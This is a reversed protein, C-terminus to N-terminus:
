NRSTKETILTNKHKGLKRGQMKGKETKESGGSTDLIFSPETIGQMKGKETKESGRSTNLMFSPEQRGEQRRDKLSKAAKVALMVERSLLNSKLSNKKPLSHKKKAQMRIKQPHKRSKVQKNVPNKLHKQRILKLKM